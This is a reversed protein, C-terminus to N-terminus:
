RSLVSSKLRKEANPSESRQRKAVGRPLQRNM